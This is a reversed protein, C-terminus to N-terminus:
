DVSGKKVSADGDNFRSYLHNGDCFPKRVSKGCRCLTMRNRVEYCTGDASEVPIGGKVWLPGSMEVQPDQTVSICPDFEPEIPSGTKDCVVLRGSPCNGAQTTAIERSAPDDSKAVLSWTGGYPDCFRAGSCLPAVDLLDIQPGETKQAIESFRSRDARETGDFHGATHAGDCFPKNGSAGCRCLRYQERLPYAGADTWQEPQGSKGVEAIEKKLPVSGTVIYPGNKTITIKRNNM